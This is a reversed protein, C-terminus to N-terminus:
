LTELDMLLEDTDVKAADAARLSDMIPKIKESVMIASLEAKTRKAMWAEIQEASREPYIELLAARLHGLDASPRAGGGQRKRNWDEGGAHYFEILEKMADHREQASAPKGDDGSAKAAADAIRQKMGHVAAYALVNKHLKSMDLVLDGIDKVTFHLHTNAFHFEITGTAATMRTSIVSNTRGKKETM